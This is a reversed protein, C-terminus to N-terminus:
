PLTAPRLSIPPKTVRRLTLNIRGGKNLLASTSPYIRDVGHSALRGEGGLIVVDDSRLRFSKTPDDRKTGGVRFLCDQRVRNRGRWATDIPRQVGIAKATAIRAAYGSWFPGPRYIGDQDRADALMSRLLAPDDHM